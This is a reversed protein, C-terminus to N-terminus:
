MRASATTPAPTAKRAVAGICAAVSSTWAGDANPMMMASGRHSRTAQASGSAGSAANAMTRTRGAAMARTPVTFAAPTIMAASSASRAEAAMTADRGAAMTGIRAEGMIVVRALASTVDAV